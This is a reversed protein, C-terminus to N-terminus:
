LRVLQIDGRVGLIDQFVIVVGIIDHINECFSLVKEVDKKTKVQNGISTAWADALASSEAVVTVADAKGFSLSPGIQGSSTAVGWTKGPFVRLGLHSQFPTNEGAYIAITRAKLSHILLDGGNEIILEQSKPFLEDALRDNVAGAVAAMPGVKARFATGAMLKCIQPAFDAVTIPILSKKFNPQYRIYAELNRRERDLVSYAIESLDFQAYIMLDSEKIKVVFAVLGAPKMLHRYLRDIYETM